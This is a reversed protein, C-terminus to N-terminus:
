IKGHDHSGDAETVGSAPWRAVAVTVGGYRQKEVLLETAGAALLAAAEAVSATGMEAAVGVSPNPVSVAALAEASYFALPWDRAKAFAILGPENAKRAHSALCRVQIPGLPRVSTDVAEELTALSVGRRCGIGIAVHM